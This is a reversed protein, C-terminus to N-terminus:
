VDSHNHWAKFNRLIRTFPPHMSHMAMHPGRQLQLTATGYSGLMELHM